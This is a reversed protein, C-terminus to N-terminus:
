YLELDIIECIEYEGACVWKKTREDRWYGGICIHRCRDFDAFAHAIDRSPAQHNSHISSIRFLRNYGEYRETSFLLAPGFRRIHDPLHTLIHFKSKLTLLSPSLVVAFDIIDQIATELCSKFM